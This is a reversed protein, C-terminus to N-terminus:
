EVRNYPVGQTAAFLSKFLPELRRARDGIPTGEHQKAFARLKVLAQIGFKKFNRKKLPRLQKQLETDAKLGSRVGETDFRASVSAVPKEFADVGRATKQLAKLQVQADLYRGDGLLRGIAHISVDLRAQVESKARQLEAGGKDDSVRELIKWAKALEGKGFLAARARRVAAHEGWGKKRRSLESEVAKKFRSRFSDPGAKASLSEM